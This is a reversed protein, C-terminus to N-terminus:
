QVPLPVTTHAVIWNFDVDNDIPYDNDRGYAIPIMTSKRKWVHFENHGDAFAFPTGNNHYSGPLNNWFTPDTVFTVLWGDDISDGQEDTLVWENAPSPAVLDSEKGYAKYTPFWFQGATPNPYATGELYANMSVTRVRQAFGKQRQATSLFNDAPCKYIKFQKVYPFLLGNAILQTNTNDPSSTWDMIGYVWNPIQVTMGTEPAIGSDTWGNYVANNVFTGRNDDTYIHWAVAIQKYNSSCETILAQQKAKALVPLLIAALIAIIAIVVLLEILTFASLERQDEGQNLLDSKM